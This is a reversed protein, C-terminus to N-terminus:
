VTTRYGKIFHVYSCFIFLKLIFYWAETSDLAEGGDYEPVSDYQSSDYVNINDLFLGVNNGNKNENINYGALYIMDTKNNWNQSIGTYEGDVYYYYYDGEKIVGAKLEHQDSNTEVADEELSEFANNEEDIITEPDEEM